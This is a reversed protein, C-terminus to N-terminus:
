VQVDQINGRQMRTNLVRSCTELWTVYKALRNPVCCANTDRSTVVRSTVFSQMSTESLWNVVVEDVSVVLALCVVVQDFKAAYWVTWHQLCLPYDILACGSPELLVIQM